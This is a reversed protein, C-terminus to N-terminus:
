CRPGSDELRPILIRRGALHDAATRAAEALRTATDLESWLMHAACFVDGCGTSCVISEVAVAPVETWGEAANFSAAGNAGRHVVVETCGHDLLFRCADITNRTGSFLQLEPENGHVFDVFPLAESLQRRREVVQGACDPDSWQPDWNIDMYTEIGAEWARQLLVRNGEALMQESFWVDARLLKRCGAQILGGIDIDDITMLCNNPLCSIFHRRGNTWNLNISRGTAVPRRTLHAVIGSARLQRELRDGLEDSGVCGAFHVHGGLHAAALATNAGGGGLSEYIEAVGTEGDGRIDESANILSTKVDLNINGVIALPTSQKSHPNM